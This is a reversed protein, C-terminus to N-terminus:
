RPPCSPQGTLPLCRGDIDGPAKIGIVNALTPAIDVTEVPLVREESPAGNWWFLIPVKRDYNWPTGHGAVYGRPVAAYSSDGPKLAATIDASRGKYTSAAFREKLTFEDAAKDEPVPTALLDDQTFVGAIEPRSSLYKVGAAIIEGKRAAFQPAVSAELASNVLPDGTLGLEARVADNMAKLLGADVVRHADYGREALRETIDSGGHDATLAVVYPVGLADLDGLLVGITADLRYLQECMEPGQSGYRHGVYDTASFSVALLDTAPGKGLNYHRILARAGQLTLDDPIPSAMVDASIARAETGVGWNAPPLKSQFDFDGLRITSALARCEDHAYDWVPPTTWTKAIATNVAAIPALKRKENDRRGLYTTFGKGPLLWFVGDPKHGALNIAGRDKSSVAVVRSHPSVGKLWEGLTSAMLRKPGVPEAKPDLALRVTEDRLCYIVAGTGEDRMTNGVIGTKNPRKGTLMTSHGPCTETNGHSQYGEAYVIGSGLRKLGGTFRPRWADFLSAALQDVAIMVVLKPKQPQAPTQGAAPGAMALGGLAALVAWKGVRM